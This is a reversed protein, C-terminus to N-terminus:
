NRRKSKPAKARFTPVLGLTAVGAIREVEEPSEWDDDLYDLLFALGVGMMVGLVLALLVNRMM